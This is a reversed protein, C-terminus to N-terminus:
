CAALSGRFCVIGQFLICHTFPLLTQYVTWDLGPNQVRTIKKELALLECGTGTVCVQVYPWVHAASRCDVQQNATKSMLRYFNDNKHKM